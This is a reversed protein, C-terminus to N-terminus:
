YPPHNIRIEHHFHKRQSMHPHFIMQYFTLNSTSFVSSHGFVTQLVSLYYEVSLFGFYYLETVLLEFIKYSWKSKASDLRRSLSNHKGGVRQLKHLGGAFKLMCWLSFAVIIFAQVTSTM